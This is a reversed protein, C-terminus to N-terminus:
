ILSQGRFEIMIIPIFSLVEGCLVILVFTLVLVSVRLINLCNKDATYIKM